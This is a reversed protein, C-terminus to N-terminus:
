WYRPYVWRKPGDPSKILADKMRQSISHGVIAIAVLIVAGLIVNPVFLWGLGEVGTGGVVAILATAGAPPHTVGSFSMVWVSLAVALAVAAPVAGTRGSDAIIIRAAVGFVAGLTHGCIVNRPQALPSSPAAYVLVATAAFSGILLELGTARASTTFHIGALAGMGLLTLAGSAAADACSDRPPPRSFGCNGCLSARARTTSAEGIPDSSSSSAGAM